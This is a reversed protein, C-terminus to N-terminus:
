ASVFCVDFSHYPETYWNDSWLGGLSASVGWGYLGGEWSVRWNKGYGCKDSREPTQLIVEGDPYGLDHALICLAKFFAKAAGGETKYRSPEFDLTFVGEDTKLKM